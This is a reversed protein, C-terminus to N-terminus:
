MEERELDEAVELSPTKKEVSEEIIVIEDRTLGYLSYVMRHFNYFPLKENACNRLRSREVNQSNDYRLLLPRHFIWSCNRLIFDFRPRSFDPRERNM